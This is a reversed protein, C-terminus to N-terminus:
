QDAPLMQLQRARAVAQTRSNVNLKGYINATHKKVASVTIVLKAAIAQNSDGAAILRLVELERATLPEVLSLSPEIAAVESAPAGTSLHSSPLSPSPFAALIEQVFGQKITGPLGRRLLANLSEVISEGEEVFSNLIGEPAALELAKIIDAEASDAAASDAAGSEASALVEFFRSRLLLTELAAPIHGCQLEGALVRSALEVGRKLDMENYKARSRYLLVRLASNYVLGVPHPVSAAPALEPFRFGGDFSFGEPKLTEQAEAVRDLGLCARVQQSIIEERVMAPPIRRALEVAQEM